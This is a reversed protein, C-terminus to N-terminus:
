TTFFQDLLVSSGANLTTYLNGVAGNTFTVTFDPATLRLQFTSGRQVENGDRTSKTWQEQASVALMTLGFAFLLLTKKM